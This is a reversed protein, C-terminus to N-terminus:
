LLHNIVCSFLPLPACALIIVAYKLVKARKNNIQHSIWISNNYDLLIKTLIKGFINSDDKSGLVETKLWIDPLRGSSGYTQFKIVYCLLFLSLLFLLWSMIICNQFYGEFVVDKPLQYIERAIWVVVWLVFPLIFYARKDIGEKRQKEDHIKLEALRISEKLINPNFYGMEHIDNNTKIMKKIGEMKNYVM